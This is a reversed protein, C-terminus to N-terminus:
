NQHRKVLRNGETKTEKTGVSTVVHLQTSSRIMMGPALSTRSRLMDIALFCRQSTCTQVDSLFSYALVDTELFAMSRTIPDDLLHAHLRTPTRMLSFVVGAALSMVLWFMLALFFDDVLVM